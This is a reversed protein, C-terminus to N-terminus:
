PRPTTRASTRGAGTAQMPPWFVLMNPLPPFPFETTVQLTLDDLAVVGLEEPPLEGAVIEQYNEIIGAFM